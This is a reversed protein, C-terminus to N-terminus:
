AEPRLCKNERVSQARGNSTFMILKDQCDLFLKSYLIKLNFDFRRGQKFNQTFNLNFDFLRQKSKGAGFQCINLYLCPRIALPPWPNRYTEGLGAM